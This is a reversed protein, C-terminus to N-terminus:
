MSGRIEPETNVTLLVERLQTFPSYFCVSPLWRSGSGPDASWEPHQYRSWTRFMYLSGALGTHSARRVLDRCVRQPVIPCFIASPLCISMSSVVLDTLGSDKDIDEIVDEM